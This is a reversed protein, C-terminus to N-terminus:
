PFFIWAVGATGPGLSAKGNKDLGVRAPRTGGCDWHAASKTLVPAAPALLETLVAHRMILGWRTQVSRRATKLNIVLETSKTM